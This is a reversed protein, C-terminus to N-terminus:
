SYKSMMGSCHVTVDFQVRGTAYVNRVKEVDFSFTLPMAELRWLLHVRRLRAFKRNACQEHLQTFAKELDEDPIDYLEITVEEISQPLAEHLTVSGDFGLLIRWPIRLRTLCSMHQLSHLWGFVSPLLIPNFDEEIKIERLTHRHDQLAEAIPTYWDECDKVSISAISTSEFKLLSTCARIMNCAISSKALPSRFSLSTIPSSRLPWTWPQSFVTTNNPDYIYTEGDYTGGWGGLTLRELTPLLLLPFSYTVPLRLPYVTELHLVYLRSFTHVQGIPQGIASRSIHELLLNVPNQLAHRGRLLTKIKEVNPTLLTCLTLWLDEGRAHRALLDESDLELENALTMIYSEPVTGRYNLALSSKATSSSKQQSTTEPCPVDQLTKVYTRYQPRAQLTGLCRYFISRGHEIGYYPLARGIHRYLIPTAINNLKRNVLCVHAIDKPPQHSPQHAGVWEIIHVLLAHPLNLMVTSSALHRM